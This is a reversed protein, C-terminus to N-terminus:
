RACTRAARMGAKIALYAMRGDDLRQQVAILMEQGALAMVRDAVRGLAERAGAALGSTERARDVALHGIHYTFREGPRATEFWGFLAAESTVITRIPEPIKMGMSIGARAAPVLEFSKARNRGRVPSFVFNDTRSEAFDRSQLGATM